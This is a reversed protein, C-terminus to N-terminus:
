HSRRATGWLHHCTVHLCLVPVSLLGFVTLQTCGPLRELVLSGETQHGVGLGWLAQPFIASLGRICDREWLLLCVACMQFCKLHARYQPLVKAETQGWIPSLDRSHASIRNAVLPM